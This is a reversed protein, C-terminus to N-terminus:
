PAHHTEEAAFPAADPSPTPGADPSPPPGADPSPTPDETGPDASRHAWTRAAVPITTTITARKSGADPGTRQAWAELGRMWAPCGAPLDEEPIPALDGEQWTTGYPRLAVVEDPAHAQVRQHLAALRGNWNELLSSTAEAHSLQGAASASEPYTPHRIPALHLRDAVAPRRDAWDEYATRALGGLTVVATLAQPETLADLWRDRYAAIATDRAHRAGGGQGYVSYLFANVMVYSHTVGVRALFGQVRQGAEGVLIRRSIAEHTAPDQGIVLVRASGDLRGRHFIPGWETRFDRSPFVHEGPYERVLTAFPENSYGPCFAHAM